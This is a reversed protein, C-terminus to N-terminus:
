FGAETQVKHYERQLEAIYFALTEIKMESMAFQTGRSASRHIVVIEQLDDPAPLNEIVKEASTKHLRIINDM